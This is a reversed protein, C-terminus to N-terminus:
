LSWVLGLLFVILFIFLWGFTSLLMVSAAKFHHHMSKVIAEFFILYGCVAVSMVLLFFQFVMRIFVGVEDIFLYSLSFVVLTIFLCYVVVLGAHLFGRWFPRQYDRSILMLYIILFLFNPIFLAVQRYSLNKWSREYRM